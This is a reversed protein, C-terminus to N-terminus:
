ESDREVIRQYLEHQDRARMLTDRFSADKVLRSVRALLKLHAGNSQEPAVLLFFLRTPLGDLAGFDVGDAHRGIVLAVNTLGALRGHPIAVGEIVATSGLRERECVLDLLLRGDIEPRQSALSGVLECLIGEKSEGRLAPLVLPEEM